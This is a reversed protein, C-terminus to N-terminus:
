SADLANFRGSFIDREIILDRSPNRNLFAICEAEFLSSFVIPM